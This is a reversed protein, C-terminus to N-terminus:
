PIAAALERWPPLPALLTRLVQATPEFELDGQRTARRLRAESPFLELMPPVRRFRVRLDWFPRDRQATAAIARLVPAVLANAGGAASLADLALICVNRGGLRGREIQQWAYSAPIASSLAGDVVGVLDHESFTRELFETSIPDDAPPEYHLLGPIAASLGAADLAALAESGGEAGLLLPVLLRRSMALSILRAGLRAVAGARLRAVARVDDLEVIQAFQEREGLFAGAAVGTALADVPIALEGLRLPEGDPHSFLPGLARRLDLRLAAPLGFRSSADPPSFVGVSRVQRLEDYVAELDFSRTRARVVALLSGISCGVMYSPPVGLQELRELAGLFVFGSGAAGGMVLALRKHAIEDDLGKESDLGAGLVWSRADEVLAVIRPLLEYLDEARIREHDTPLAPALLQLLRLRFSGIPYVLADPKPGITSLQALRIAYRLLDAHRPALFLPDETLRRALAIEGRRFPRFEDLFLAADV